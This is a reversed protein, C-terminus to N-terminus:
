INQLHILIDLDKKNSYGMGYENIFNDRINNILANGDLENLSNWFEEDALLSGFESDDFFDISLFIVFFIHM